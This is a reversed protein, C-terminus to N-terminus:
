QNQATTPEVPANSPAIRSVVNVGNIEDYTFELKDGPKLNSLTAPKDGVLIICNNAVNFQKSAFTTKAKLTRETVDIATLSGTFTQSTQAIQRAVASGGADEHLVTVRHGPQVDALSGTRNNHLVVSCDDAIRYTERGVTLTHKGADVAKVTGTYLLPEQAVRDAVLVGNADQYTLTVKQGARVGDISSARRDVLDFVCSDGLNFRKSGTIRKVTVARDKTDVSKVMGTYTKETIKQPQTVLAEEAAVTLAATTLLSLGVATWTRLSHTKM